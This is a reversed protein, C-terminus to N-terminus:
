VEIAMLLGISTLNLYVGISTISLYIKCFQYVLSTVSNCYKYIWWRDHLPILRPGLVASAPAPAPAPLASSPLSVPPSLSFFPRFGNTGSALSARSIGMWYKMEFHAAPRWWRRRRHNLIIRALYNPWWSERALTITVSVTVSKM